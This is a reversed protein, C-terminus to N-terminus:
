ESAKRSHSDLGGDHRLNASSNAATSVPFTLATLFSNFFAFAGLSSKFLVTDNLAPNANTMDPSVTIVNSQSGSSMDTLPLM